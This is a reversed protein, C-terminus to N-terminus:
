FIKETVGNSFQRSLSAIRITDGDGAMYLQRCVKCKFDVHVEAVAVSM